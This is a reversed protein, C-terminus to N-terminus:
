LEVDSFDKDTHTIDDPETYYTEVKEKMVNFVRDPADSQLIKLNNPIKLGSQTIPSRRFSTCVVTSKLKGGYHLYFKANEQCIDSLAHDLLKGKQNSLWFLYFYVHPYAYEFGQLCLSQCRNIITHLVSSIYDDFSPLSSSDAIKKGFFSLVLVWKQLNTLFHKSLFDFCVGHNIIQIDTM